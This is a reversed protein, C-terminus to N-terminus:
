KIIEQYLLQTTEKMLELSKEKSNDNISIRNKWNKSWNIFEKDDYLSNNGIKVNM